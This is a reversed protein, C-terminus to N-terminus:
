ILCLDLIYLRPEIRGSIVSFILFLFEGGFSWCGGRAAALGDRGAHGDTRCVQRPGAAGTPPLVHRSRCDAPVRHSIELRRFPSVSPLPGTGRTGRGTGAPVPSHRRFPRHRVQIRLIGPLFLPIRLSELDSVDELEMEPWFYSELLKRYTEHLSDVTLPKSREVMEHTIKEFEAFMTQRIITAIIDDVQKGILYAKM